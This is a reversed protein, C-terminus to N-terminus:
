IIKELKIPIKESKRVNLINKPPLVIKHVCSIRYAKM